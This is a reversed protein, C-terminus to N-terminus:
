RQAMLGEWATSLISMFSASNQGAQTPAIATKYRDGSDIGAQEPPGAECSPERAGGLDKNDSVM